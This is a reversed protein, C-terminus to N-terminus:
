KVKGISTNVGSSPSKTSKEFPKSERLANIAAAVSEQESLDRCNLMLRCLDLLTSGEVVFSRCDSWKSICSIVKAAVLGVEMRGHGLLGVLQQLTDCPIYVVEVGQVGSAIQAITHAVAKLFDDGIERCLLRILPGLTSLPSPGWDATM